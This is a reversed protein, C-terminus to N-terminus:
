RSFITIDASTAIVFSKETESFGFARIECVEDDAVLTEEGTNDFNLYVGNADYSLQRISLKWGDRTKTSLTGGFLGVTKIDQGDLVDFGKAILTSQDLFEDPYDSNRAIRQGKLCDFIGSGNHSLVLLLDSNKAYGVQILGGVPHVAIQTWVNNM